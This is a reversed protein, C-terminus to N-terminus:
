GYDTRLMPRIPGLKNAFDNAAQRVDAADRQPSFLASGLGFGAAGATAWPLLDDSRVGGVAILPVETPLVALQGKVFQPSAGEAPFLKIAHAGAVIASLAETPSFFGPASVLQAKTTAAIVEIDTNPSVILQGGANAVQRVAAADLVTGAGVTVQAGFAKAIIEISDYPQPSNLPVEIIRFGADVLIGAISKADPPTIGRLIAILPFAKLRAYFLEVATM